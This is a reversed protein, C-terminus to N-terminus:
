IGALTMTVTGSFGNPARILQAEVVRARAGSRVELLWERLAQPGIGDLQLIARDGRFELQAGPGLRTTAAQLAQTSQLLTVQPLNRLERAEAALRQMTQTQQDLAALRAPAQRLTQWAPQVGVLWLIALAVATVAIGIMIRERPALAGFRARVPALRARLGSGADRPATPATVTAM